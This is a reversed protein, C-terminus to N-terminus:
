IEKFDELKWHGDAGRVMWKNKPVWWNAPVPYEDELADVGKNVLAVDRDVELKFGGARGQEGAVGHLYCELNHLTQVTGPKKLYPSRGTDIALLVGVDVYVVPPVIPVVDGANKVHLARLHEFSDFAAKFSRDGVHPCAFVVATVPCPPQSSAANLGNAAIDVANLVALAAGLSHGTITISTEEDKYLEMLRRVEEFVQDRASAKNYKSNANSSTYVSLFGQHVMALPNAAASSGLVPAASVPTFSFDNAWELDTVTGRWAVVIDRRGLEAVGEDTAVAVYGIWNSERCWAADGLEPLPLLLVSEPVPVASTAYFFKTVAYSGAAAVGVGALLDSRGYLCAGAHPSRREHNFGDQAAQALEGYAIVSKRLDIDLPDLLGNWSNNGHLERWRVATTPSSSPAAATLSPVLLCMFLSAVLMVM